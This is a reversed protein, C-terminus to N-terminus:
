ELDSVWIWYDFERRVVLSLPRLPSITPFTTYGKRDGRGAFQGGFIGSACGFLFEENVKLLEEKWFYDTDLIDTTYVESTVGGTLDEL